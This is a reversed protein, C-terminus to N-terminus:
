KIRTFDIKLEHLVKDIKTNITRIEDETMWLGSDLDALKYQMRYISDVAKSEYKEKSNLLYNMLRFRIRVADYEIESSESCVLVIFDNIVGINIRKGEYLRKFWRISAVDDATIYKPTEENM